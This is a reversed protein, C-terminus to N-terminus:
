IYSYCLMTYLTNYLNVLFWKNMDCYTDYVNPSVRDENKMIPTDM